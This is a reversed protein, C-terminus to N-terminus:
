PQSSLFLSSLSLAPASHALTEPGRAADPHKDSRHFRVVMRHPAVAGSARALTGAWAPSRALGFKRGLGLNRGPRPPLARSLTLARVSPRRPGSCRASSALGRQQASGTKLANQAASPQFSLLFFFSIKNNNELLLKFAYKSSNSHNQHLKETCIKDL